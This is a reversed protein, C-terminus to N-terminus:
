LLGHRLARHWCSRRHPCARRTRRDALRGRGAPRATARYVAGMLRPRACRRARACAAMVADATARFAGAGRAALERCVARLGPHALVAAPDDRAIGHAALLERPLYLRGREADEALDRLINTLQLARGLSHAVPLRRRTTSRLDAGVAPRRRRRGPRLLPRADAMTPHWSTRERTWRGHRRDGGLFDEQRLGFAAVPGALAAAVPHRPRAAYLAAISAAGHRRARRAAAARPEDSTPSTTSWAASPTSRTCRRAGRAPLLRMGRYFISGSPAAAQAAARRSREVGGEARAGGPDGSAVGAAVDLGAPLKVREALPDRRRLRAALREALRAIVATEPGCGGTACRARCAARTRTAARRMRDLLRDMVRRLGPTAAPRAPRRGLGRVRRLIELPLYVRDLAALGQRLDQLHNLVQLSACLADSVTWTAGTRATCTSCTAASRCRRTAATTWCNTGTRTACSPRTAAPVGRAPRPLPRAHRRTAALSQACPSRRPRTPAADARAARGGDRRAARGQGRGGAGANDAIDDAARAFRYFAHVHPGCTPPPDALLRGSLERRRTSKGSPTEVTVASMSRSAQLRPGEVRRRPRVPAAAGFRGHRAVYFLPSWRCRRRGCPVSASLLAVDAPLRGGDAGLGAAWCAGGGTASCRWCRRRWTSSLGHRARDAPWCCRRTAFQTYATRAVMRWIDGRLRISAAISRTADAHGLWIAGGPKMAAASRATTSSRATIAAIGGIRELAERRVLMCGGAAAATRAESREGLRVSLADPLLVRLGPGARARGPRDCHLRVM